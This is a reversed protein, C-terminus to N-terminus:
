ESMGPLIVCSPPRIATTQRRPSHVAGGSGGLASGGGGRRVENARRRWRRLDVVDLLLDLRTILPDSTPSTLPGHWRAGDRAIFADAEPPGWSGAEYPAPQGDAAWADLIPTLIKWSQEVWDGRAYLTADGHIADLLLREYAEPSHSGFVAGYRFDMTVTALKLDPGPTKATITLAIGEDPQIRVILLNPEVGTPSRRFIMHPTRRFSIVIESARKPLRKSTRLFFPVGAWRWNDVHLKLAAYTETRSDPAVGKEQRYGKM